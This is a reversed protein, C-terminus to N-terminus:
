KATPTILWLSRRETTCRETASTRSLCDRRRTGRRAGACRVRLSCGGAVGGVRAVHHRTTRRVARNAGCIRRRASTPDGPALGWEGDWCWWHCENYLGQRYLNDCSPLSLQKWFPFHSLNDCALLVRREQSSDNRRHRHLPRLRGWQSPLM